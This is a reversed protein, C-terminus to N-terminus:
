NSNRFFPSGVKEAEPDELALWKQVEQAESTLGQQIAKFAKISELIGISYNSRLQYYRSSIQVLPDDLTNHLKDLAIKKTQIQKIKDTSSPDVFAM